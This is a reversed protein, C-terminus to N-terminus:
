RKSAIISELRRVLRQHSAMYSRYLPRNPAKGKTYYAELGKSRLIAVVRKAESLTYSKKPSAGRAKESGKVYVWYGKRGNGELAYEGTGFEEWIANQYNSGIYAVKMGEDVVHQYSAKTQGTDVRSLEKAGAEIEGAAEELWSNLASDIEASVEDVFSELRIEFMEREIAM